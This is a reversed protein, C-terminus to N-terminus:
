DLSISIAIQRLRPMAAPPSRLVSQMSTAALKFRYTTQRALSQSVLRKGNKWSRNSSEAVSQSITTDLIVDRGAILAVDGGRITASRNVIDQSARAIVTGGVISGGDRNTITQGSLSVINNAEITGINEIAGAIDAVVNNGALVAGNSLTKQDAAALYVVPILVQRGAVEGTVWWVISSGLSAIQDDTLEVGFELGLSAQQALAADMLGQAQDLPNGYQPLQAQNTAARVQEAIFQTEFFGDGLRTFYTGRDIGLQDFFFDSDFLDGVSSFGPNTTFLFEAGPANNFSFLTNQGDFGLGNQNPALGFRDLFSLLFGSQLQNFDAISAINLANLVGGDGLIAETLQQDLLADFASAPNVDGIPIGLVDIAELSNPLAGIMQVNAISVANGEVSAVGEVGITQAVLSPSIGAGFIAPAENAAQPNLSAIAGAGVGSFLGFGAIETETFAAVEGTIGGVAEGIQEVPGAVSATSAVLSVGSAQAGNEQVSFTGASSGIPTSASAANVVQSSISQTFLAGNGTNVLSGEAGQAIGAENDIISPLFTGNGRVVNQNAFVAVESGTLGNGLVLAFSAIGANTGGPAIGAQQTGPDITPAINQGAVAGGNDVFTGNGLQNATIALTGGAQITSPLLTTVPVIETGVVIENGTYELYRTFFGDYTCSGPVIFGAAELGPCLNQGADEIFAQTEREVIDREELVTIGTSLNQLTDAQIVINRGAFISSNSNLVDGTATIAIDQAAVISAAGSNATISQSGDANDAIALTKSRNTLSQANIDISGGLSEITGSLNEVAGADIDINGLALILGEDNTVDVNSRFVIDNNFTLSLDGGAFLTGTNYIDDRSVLTLDGNAGLLGTNEFSDASLLLNGDSTLTGDNVFPAGQHIAITGAFVSDSSLLGAIDVAGRDARVVLQGLATIDGDFALDNNLSTLFASGDTVVTGEIQLETAANIAINADNGFVSNLQLNRANGISSVVGTNLVTIDGGSLGTSVFVVDNSAVTGAITISALPNTTIPAGIIPQASGAVVDVYEGALVQGSGAIMISQGAVLGAYGDSVITGEVLFSGETELYAEDVGQLTGAIQHTDTGSAFVELIGGSSVFGTSAISLTDTELLIDGLAEINGAVSLDSLTAFEINQESFVLSGARIDLESIEGTIDGRAQLSGNLSVANGTLGLSGGALVDGSINANGFTLDVVGNARLGGGLGLEGSVALNAAGEAILLGSITLDEFGTLSLNEGAFITYTDSVRQNISTSVPGFGGVDVSVDGLATM